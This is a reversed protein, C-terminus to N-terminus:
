AAERRPGGGHPTTRRASQASPEYHLGYREALIRCLLVQKNTKGERAEEDLAERLAPPPRFIVARNGM